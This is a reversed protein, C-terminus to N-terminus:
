AIATKLIPDAWEAFISRIEANKRKEGGVEHNGMIVLKHRLRAASGSPSSAYPLSQVADLSTAAIFSFMARPFPAMQEHLEHTDSIIILRM